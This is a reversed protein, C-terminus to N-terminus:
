NKLWKLKIALKIARYILYLGIIVWVIKGTVFYLQQIWNLKMPVQKEVPYPKAIEKYVSDHVERIAGPITKQISDDYQILTHHLSDDEVWCESIAYKTHLTSHKGEVARIVIKVIEGGIKVYVTTDRIVTNTTRIFVSDIIQTSPCGFKYQALEYCKQAKECKRQM